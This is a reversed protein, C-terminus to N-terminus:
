RSFHHRPRELPPARRATIDVKENFFAALGTIPLLQRTPFDYSWALDRHLREPDRVSWYASTAARTRASPSPTRRSLVELNSRTRPVYYRTPLGTEFVIM